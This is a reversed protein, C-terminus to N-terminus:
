ETSSCRRASCRSGFTLPAYGALVVRLMSRYMAPYQARHSSDRRPGHRKQERIDLPRGRSPLPVRVRHPRSKGQVVLQQARRDRHVTTVDERGRPSPNAAAKALVSFAMRAATSDCAPRARAEHGSPSSNRTRMPMWVPSVSASAAAVVETRGHIPGCAHRVGRVPCLDQHARRRSLDHSALMRLNLSPEVEAEVVGRSTM